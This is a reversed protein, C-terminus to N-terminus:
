NAKKWAVFDRYVKVSYVFQSYSYPLKESASLRAERISCLLQNLAQPSGVTSPSIEVSLDREVRKCRSITDSVARPTLLNGTRLSVRITKLYERFQDEYKM